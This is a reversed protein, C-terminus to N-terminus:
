PEGVLEDGDFRWGTQRLGTAPTFGPIAAFNSSESQLYAALKRAAPNRTAEGEWTTISLVRYIPYRGAPGSIGDAPSRGDLRLPKVGSGAPHREVMRLAEYGIAAPNNAVGAIMDDITGVEMLHPSFLDEDALLLRWHGPRLKCHLRGLPLIPLNPGRTGNADTVEGWNQIHGQFIARAQELTIDALPNDRHVLLAVPVIGLTHFALGPLRDTTGPPCCFGAMDVAKKALKGASIGCTGESIEIRLGNERGYKEILLRLAPYLHQDLAIVLDAQRASPEHRIPQEVWERDMEQRSTPSSFPPGRLEEGAASSLELPLLATLAVLFLAALTVAPDKM